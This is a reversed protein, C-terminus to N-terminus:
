LSPSLTSHFSVSLPQQPTPQLSPAPLAPLPRGPNGGQQALFKGKITTIWRTLRPTSPCAPQFPTLFPPVPSPLILHLHLSTPTPTFPFFPHSTPSCPSPCPTMPIFFPSNPEFLPTLSFGPSYHANPTLLLCLLRLIFEVSTCTTDTIPSLIIQCSNVGEEHAVFGLSDAKHC